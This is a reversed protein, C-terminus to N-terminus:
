DDYIEFPNVFDKPISMGSRAWSAKTCNEVLEDLMRQGEIISEDDEEDDYQDHYYDDDYLRCWARPDSFESDGFMDLQCDHFCDVYKNGISNFLDKKYYQCFTYISLDKGDILLISFSKNLLKKIKRQYM